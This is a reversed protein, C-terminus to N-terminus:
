GDYPASATFLATIRVTGDADKITAYIVWTQNQPGATAYWAQVLAHDKALRALTARHRALQRPLKKLDLPKFWDGAFLWTGSALCPLFAELRARVITGHTGFQRTCRRADPDSDVWYALGEYRFPAELVDLAARFDPTHGDSSSVAECLRSVAAEAEHETPVAARARSALGGLLVLVVVRVM